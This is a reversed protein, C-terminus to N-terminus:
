NDMKVDCITIDLNTMIWYKGTNEPFRKRPVIEPFGEGFKKVSGYLDQIKQSGKERRSNITKPRNEDM